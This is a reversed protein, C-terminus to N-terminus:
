GRDRPSPSTYLLCVYSASLLAEQQAFELAELTSQQTKTDFGHVIVNFNDTTVGKDFGYKELNLGASLYIVKNKIDNNDKDKTITEKVVDGDAKLSSAKPIKTQPLAISTKQINKIDKELKKSIKELAAGYKEYFEGNRKVGLLDAKTLM